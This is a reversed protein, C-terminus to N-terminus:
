PPHPGWTPMPQGGKLQRRWHLAKWRTSRGPRSVPCRHGRLPSPLTHSVLHCGQEGSRGRRPTWPDQRCIDSKTKPTHEGWRCVAGRSEHVKGNPCLLTSTPHAGAGGLLCSAETSHVPSGTGVQCSLKGQGGGKPSGPESSATPTQSGSSPQSPGQDSTLGLGTSGLPLRSGGAVGVPEEWALVLPKERSSNM